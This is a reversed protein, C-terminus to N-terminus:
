HQGAGPEGAPGGETPRLRALRGRLIAATVGADGLMEVLGESPLAILRMPTQAVVRAGRTLRDFPARSAVFDGATVEGVQEGGQWLAARGDVVVAVHAADQGEQQIVSGPSVAVDKASGALADLQDPSL